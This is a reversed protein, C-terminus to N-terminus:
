NSNLAPCTTHVGLLSADEVHETPPAYVKRFAASLHAPSKVGVASAVEVM